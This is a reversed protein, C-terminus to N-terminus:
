RVAVSGDSRREAHQGVDIRVPGGATEIVAAATGDGASHVTEGDRLFDLPFQGNYPELTVTQM